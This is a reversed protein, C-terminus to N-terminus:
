YTLFEFLLTTLDSFIIINYNGLSLFSFFVQFGSSRIHNTYSPFCRITSTVLNTKPLLFSIILYIIFYVFSLLSLFHLYLLPKRQFILYVVCVFLSLLIKFTIFCVYRFRDDYWSVQFLVSFLPSDNYFFKQTSVTLCMYWVDFHSLTNCPVM